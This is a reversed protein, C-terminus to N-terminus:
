NYGLSADETSQSQAVSLLESPALSNPLGLLVIHYFLPGRVMDIWLLERVGTTLTVSARYGVSTALAPTEFTAYNGVERNEFTTENYFDLAQTPSGMVLVRTALAKNTGNIAWTRDYGARFGYQRLVVTEAAPTTSQVSAVQSIDLPGEFGVGVLAEVYSGPFQGFILDRLSAPLTTTTISPITTTASAAKSSGSCGSLGAVGILASLGFLWLIHIPRKVEPPYGSDASVCIHTLIPLPFDDHAVCVGMVASSSSSSVSRTTSTHGASSYDPSSDRQTRQSMVMPTLSPVM